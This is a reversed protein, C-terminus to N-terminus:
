YNGEVVTVSKNIHIGKFITVKGDPWRVTLTDISTNQGIGIVQSLSNSIGYSEGARIERTYKQGGAEITIRAGIGSRNGEYGILHVKLFHNANGTNLWLKDPKVQGYYYSAYIDLFGDDNFDGVMFSRLPSGSQDLIPTNVESFTLNGNNRMLKCGGIGAVILDPFGDNDFDRLLAQLIGNPLNDLGSTQTIETFHGSGDNLLLRSPSYHNVIFADLDGDRDIDQFETVWSQNNDKLNYAAANETYHNTGDNVFLQNIRRPDAPDTVGARCKSIYFDTDGDNDFDTFVVGYNGSNDSAPSTLLNIGMDNKSFSSGMNHWIGSKADDHCVFLDLLGDGNIDAMASAQTFLTDGGELRITQYTQAKNSLLLFIGTHQGGTLIDTYSDNNVDGLIVSLPAAPLINGLSLEQFMTDPPMPQKLVYFSGTTSARVIDDRFDHNMDSCGKQLWSYFSNSQPLRQSADRFAIQSYACCYSLACILTVIYKVSQINSISKKKYM